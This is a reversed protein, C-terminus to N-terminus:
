WTRTLAVAARIATLNPSDAGYIRVVPDISWGRALPVVVGVAATPGWGRDSEAREVQSGDAFTVTDFGDARIFGLGGSVTLHVREVGFHYSLNMSGSTASEYGIRGDGTCTPGVLGCPAREPELGVFRNVEFVVWGRPFIRVGAEGGLNLTTGFSRDEIRFLKSMGVTGGIRFRGEASAPQAHAVSPPSLAVMLTWGLSIAYARGNM